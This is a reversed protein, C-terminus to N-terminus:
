WSHRHKPPSRSSIPSCPDSVDDIWHADEILYVTPTDPGALRHQDPQHTPTTERRPRNRARRVPIASASCTTSCYCTTSPPPTSDRASVPVHPIPTLAPSASVARFLRAVAHFPIDGAHAECYTTFVEAGGRAAIDSLESAIRSKGIGPPGVVGVTAGVGSMAQKLIGTMATLEWTRGVLTTDHRRQRAPDGTGLLRYAGVPSDSGKIRVMEPEGLVAVHSVLHATTDSIMVGGPPAASEMRQAMGVHVGIATYGGSGSDIDGAIVQGSNLGIRLRLEIGDRHASRGGACHARNSHGLRRPLGSLTTKWHWQRVLCRWSATEPSSTSPAAM